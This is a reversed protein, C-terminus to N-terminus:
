VLGRRVAWLAAQTRDSVGIKTLTHQVHEKVTEYGIGLKEAIQLNTLGETVGGLVELERRTLPIELEADPLPRARTGIIRRLHNRTWIEQGAAAARVAALLAERSVDKKALCGCAGLEHARAFHGPHDLDAIMIVPTKPRKRKIRRLADLGDQEPMRVALLVVHPKEALALEVASKGTAAEGIVEIEPHALLRRLGHRVIEQGDAILVRISM